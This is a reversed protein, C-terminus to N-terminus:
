PVKTSVYRYKRSKLNSKHMSVKHYAAELHMASAM